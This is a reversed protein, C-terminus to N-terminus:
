VTVICLSNKEDDTKGILYASRLEVFFPMIGLSFIM